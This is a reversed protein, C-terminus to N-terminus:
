NLIGINRVRVYCDKSILLTIGSDINEAIIPDNKDDIVKCIGGDYYFKCLDGVELKKLRVAKGNKYVITQDDLCFSVPVNESGIYVWNMENPTNLMVECMGGKYDIEFLDGNKLTRVKETDETKKRWNVWKM